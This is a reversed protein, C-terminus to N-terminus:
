AHKHEQWDSMEFVGKKSTNKGKTNANKGREM